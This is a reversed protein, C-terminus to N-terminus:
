GRNEQNSGNPLGALTRTLDLCACKLPHSM